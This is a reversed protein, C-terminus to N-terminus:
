ATATATSATTRCTSTNRPRAPKTTLFDVIAPAYTAFVATEGTVVAMPVGTLAPVRLTAPDAAAVEEATTRPPDYTLPGGDLGM